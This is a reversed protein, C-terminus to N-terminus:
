LSLKESAGVFATLNELKLIMGPSKAAKSNSGSNDYSSDHLSFKETQGVFASLNELKLIMGPIKVVQTMQEPPTDKTKHSMPLPRQVNIKVPLYPVTRKSLHTDRRRSRFYEYVVWM